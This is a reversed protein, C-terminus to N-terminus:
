GSLPHDGWLQDTFDLKEKLQTKYDTLNQKTNHTDSLNGFNEPETGRKSSTNSSGRCLHHSRIALRNPHLLTHPSIVSKPSLRKPQAPRRSIAIKMIQWNKYFISWTTNLQPPPIEFRATRPFHLKVPNYDSSLESISDITCPWNLYKILAYDIISASATGLRTPTLPAFVDISNNVIYRYLRNGRTDSYSIILM